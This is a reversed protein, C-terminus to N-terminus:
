LQLLANQHIAIALRQAAAGQNPSPIKTTCVQKPDWPHHSRFPSVAKTSSYHKTHKSTTTQQDDGVKLSQMETVARSRRTGVGYEQDLQADMAQAM